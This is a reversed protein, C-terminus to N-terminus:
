DENLAKTNGVVRSCPARFLSSSNIMEYGRMLNPRLLYAWGVLSFIHIHERMYLYKICQNILRIKADKDFEHHHSRQPNIHKPADNLLVYIIHKFIFEYLTTTLFIM